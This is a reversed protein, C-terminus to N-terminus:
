ERVVPSRVKYPCNVYKGHFYLAFHAVTLLVLGGLMVVLMFAGVPNSAPLTTQGTIHSYISVPISAILMLGIWWMPLPSVTVRDANYYNEKVAEVGFKDVLDAVAADIARKSLRGATNAISRTESRITESDM